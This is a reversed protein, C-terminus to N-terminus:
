VNMNATLKLTGNNVTQADDIYWELESNGTLTRTKLGPRTEDTEWGFTTDRKNADLSSGDSEDSFTM